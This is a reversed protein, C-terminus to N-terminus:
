GDAVDPCRVTRAVAARVSGTQLAVIQISRIRMRITAGCLWIAQQIIEPPYRYGDYSIKQM